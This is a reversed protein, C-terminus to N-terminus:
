TGNSGAAKDKLYKTYDKKDARELLALAKQIKEKAKRDEISGKIPITM